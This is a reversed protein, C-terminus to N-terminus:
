PTPAVANTSHWQMLESAEMSEYHSVGALYEDAGDRAQTRYKTEALALRAAVPEQSCGRAADREAELTRGDRLRVKVRAGIRKAPREFEPDGAAEALVRDVMAAPAGRSQLWARAREGALGIAGGVPATAALAALTLDQDHSLRVLGAVAWRSTSALREGHLDDVELGGTELATAVNYGVSFGLAPLPSSSGDLYPSSEAEMGLTFISAALEVSEVEGADVPALSAAAEVASTLYACGPIAKISLTRLHWRSGWGSFVEPLPVAALQELLGGPAEMLGELGLAGDEAMQLCRAADLIPAAAVWFKADTAMFAPLMVRRPQALALSLAATLREASLGLLLGGGVVAAAAHTHTATQGRASGLTVAATVRAAVEAAAVQAVMVQAGSAGTAVGLIMPPLATAHGLHGAFATEDFDLAMTLLAQRAADGPWGTDVAIASAPFSIALLRAGVPHRMSAHAAAQMSLLQARALDRVEAPIDDLTLSTAWECAQRLLAIEAM